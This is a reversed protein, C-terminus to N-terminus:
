KDNTNMSRKNHVMYLQQPSKTITLTVVCMYGTSSCVMMCAHLTSSWIMLPIICFWPRCETQWNNSRTFRNWDQCPVNTTMADTSPIQLVFYISCPIPFSHTTKILTIQWKSLRSGSVQEWFLHSANPLAWCMCWHGHTTALCGYM